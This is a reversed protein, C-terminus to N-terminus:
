VSEENCFIQSFCIIIDFFSTVSTVDSDQLVQESACKLGKVRM